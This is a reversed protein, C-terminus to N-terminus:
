PDLALPPRDVRASKPIRTVPDRALRIYHGVTVSLVKWYALLM